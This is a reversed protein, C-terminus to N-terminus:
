NGRLSMEWFASRTACGVSPLNLPCNHWVFYFSFFLCFFSLIFGLLFSMEGPHKGEAHGLSGYNHVWNSWQHGASHLHLLLAEGPGTCIKNGKGLGWLVEKHGNEEIKLQLWCM